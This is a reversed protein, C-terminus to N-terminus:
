IRRQGIESLHVRLSDCDQFRKKPDKELLRMIIDGLAHPCKDNAVTPHLPRENLHCHYLRPLSDVEFPLRRTFMYYLVGGLSYMDCLKTAREKRVLEPAVYMPTIQESRARDFLSLLFNTGGLSYDALKAQGKRTFLVNGPKIDHHMLGKDHLYGLGNCIQAAIVLMEDLNYPRNNIYWQLDAGDVFEQVLVTGEDGTIFDLVKVINPHDLKKFKKTAQKLDMVHLRNRFFNEHFLKLAVTQGTDPDIARFVTGTGGRGVAMQLKYQYLTARDPKKPYEAM